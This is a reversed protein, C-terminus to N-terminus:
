RVRIAEMLSQPDPIIGLRYVRGDRPIEIVRGTSLAASLFRDPTIDPNAQAALAYLGALWPVGWSLGGMGYFVYETEGGPGATTRSDMPVLLAGAPVGTRYFSPAWFIGPQYSEFADPDAMLGRGLGNLGIGHIRSISTCVVLLGEARAELAAAEIEDVGPQGGRPDWGFSMSLVRIKRGEPLERNIEIMRRIARAREVLSGSGQAIYYIDAEPAVGIAAGSAISSVASGHMQAPVWEPLDVEEYQRIRGAYEPHGTLLKQDIIGIGVGRGTLGQAHLARVGLGPNRAIETVAAPDFGEPMREAPPWITNTDWSAYPLDAMRNTLDLACLNAGRFDIQFADQSAPDYSPFWAMNARGFYLAFESIRGEAFRFRMGRSSLYWSGRGPEGNVDLYLVGDKGLDPGGAATGKPEGMTEVVEAITSGVRLRCWFLFEPSRVALNQVRGASVSATFGEAFDAMFASPLNTKNFEDSGSWYRTPEGFIAIAQALTSSGPKLRALRAAFSEDPSPAQARLSAAALLFAALRIPVM